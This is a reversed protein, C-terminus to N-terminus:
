RGPARASATEAAEAQVSSEDGVMRWWLAVAFIGFMWWQLAYGLNRWDVGSAGPVPEGMLALRPDQAPTVSELVLYGTYIPGGWRNVLEAPSIADTQGDPLGAVGAAEGVHLWGVVQVTGSPPSASAAPDAAGPVWGRVVPLVAGTGEVTLPSLVLAGTRGDHVRGTVLLQDSGFTGTVSVHRGAMESTFTTQPALVTGLDVPPATLVAEAEALSRAEGRALARDLQWIGLRAFTGAAVLLVVLIVLMRPQVATRLRSRVPVTM